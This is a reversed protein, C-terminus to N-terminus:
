VVRIQFPQIVKSYATGNYHTLEYAVELRHTQDFSSILIWYDWASLYASRPQGTGEFSIYAKTGEPSWSHGTLSLNEASYVVDRTVPMGLRSQNDM